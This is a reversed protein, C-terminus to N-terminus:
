RDVRPLSRGVEGLSCAYIPKGIYYLENRNNIRFYLGEMGIEPCCGKYKQDIQLNIIGGDLVWNGKVYALDHCFNLIFESKQSPLINVEGYISKDNGYTGRYLGLINSTNLIPEESLYADFVYGKANESKIKVWYGEIFGITEKVQTGEVIEVAQNFSLKGISEMKSSPAGRVILGSNASVYKITVKPKCSCFIILISLVIYLKNM